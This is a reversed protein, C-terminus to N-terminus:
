YYTESEVWGGPNRRILTKRIEDYTFIILSFPMPIFWWTWDLPYMRLMADTGPCYALFAALLTEELLGSILIKNKMGLHIRLFSEYFSLHCFYNQFRVKNSSQFDEPRAFSFMLGNFLLLLPSSCLIAHSNSLKEKHILGNKVM